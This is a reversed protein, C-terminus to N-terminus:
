PTRNTNKHCFATNQAPKLATQHAVEGHEVQDDHLLALLVQWPESVLLLGAHAAGLAGALHPAVPNKMKHPARMARARKHCVHIFFPAYM